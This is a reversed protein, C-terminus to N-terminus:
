GMFVYDFMLSSYDTILVDTERALPYIDCGPLTVDVDPHRRAFELAMQQEYPHTNLVLRDGRAKLLRAVREIGVDFLWNRFRGRERFTPCYLYTRGGASKTERVKGLTAVDVNVYDEAVLPRFFVDNRAFGCAEFRDFVFRSRWEPETEAVEGVLVDDVTATSLRKARQWIPYYSLENVYELAIHKLPVGHWLQIRRAGSLLSMALGNPHTQSDYHDGFVAVGATLATLTMERTWQDADSPFVNGGLSRAQEEQRAHHPLFWVDVGSERRTKLFDLYAYKVNDGFIDRGVFVVRRDKWYHRSATSLAHCARDIMLKEVRAGNYDAFHELAAVRRELSAVREAQTAAEDPPVFAPVPPKPINM